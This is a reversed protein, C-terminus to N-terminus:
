EGALIVLVIGTVSLITGLLTQGTPKEHLIWYSLPLAFLPTTANIVTVRSPGALSVAALFFSAAMASGLVGAAVLLRISRRNLRRTDGLGGRVGAGALSFLVAAPLRVSNAVLPDVDDLGIAMTVAAMGWLTATVLALSVGVARRRPTSRADTLMTGTKAPRAVVYVGVLVLLAGLLIPWGVQEDLLLAGFLLTFLPYTNAIPLTRSVGILDLSVIYLADGIVGGMLVSGILYLSNTANLAGYDDARGVIWVLPVIIVMGVLTRLGNVLFADLDGSLQRLAISAGAWSITQAFAFVIGLIM